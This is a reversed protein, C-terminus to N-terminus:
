CLAIPLLFKVSSQLVHTVEFDGELVQFGLELSKKKNNNLQNPNKQQNMFYTVFRLYKERLYCRWILPLPCHLLKSQRSLEKKAM